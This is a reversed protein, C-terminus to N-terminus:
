RRYVSSRSFPPTVGNGGACRVSEKSVLVNVGSDLVVIFCLVHTLFVVVGIVFM